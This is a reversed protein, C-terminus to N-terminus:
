NSDLTSSRYTAFIIGADILADAEFGKANIKHALEILFEIRTTDEKMGSMVAKM